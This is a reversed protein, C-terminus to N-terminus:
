NVRLMPTPGPCYASAHAALAPTCASDSHPAIPSRANPPSTQRLYHDFDNCKRVMTCASRLRAALCRRPHVPTGARCFAYSYLSRHSRLPSLPSSTTTMICPATSHPSQSCNQSASPIIRSEPTARHPTTNLDSSNSFARPQSLVRSARSTPSAPHTPPRPTIKRARSCISPEFLEAQQYLFLAWVSSPFPCSCCEPRETLPPWDTHEHRPSFVSPASHLSTSRLGRMCHRKRRGHVSLPQTDIPPRALPANMSMSM